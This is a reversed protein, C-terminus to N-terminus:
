LTDSIDALGNRLAFNAAQVRNSVRLLLYIQSLRNSITKPAVQLELGIQENEYGLAVLRLLASQDPSLQSLRLREEVLRPQSTPLVARLLAFTKPDFFIGGNAVTFIASILLEDTIMDKRLYGAAGAAFARLISDADDVGTLVLVAPGTEDPTIREMAALGSLYPMNLDMLVVDPQASRVLGIAQDGSTATGVIEIREEMQLPLMLSRRFFDHDDVILLRLPKMLVM